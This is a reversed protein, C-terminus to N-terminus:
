GDRAVRGKWEMLLDGVWAKVAVTRAITHAQAPHVPAHRHGSERQAGAQEDAGEILGRTEIIEAKKERYRTVYPEVEHMIIQDAVGQPGLLFGGAETVWTARQGRRRRARRGNVVHLGFYHWLSRVGTGRRSHLPAGCREPGQASEGGYEIPCPAGEEYIAPVYHRDKGGCRMGPFRRPDRIRAVVWASYPGRVGPELWSWMPHARLAKKVMRRTSREIKSLAEVERETRDATKAGQVLKAYRRWWAVSYDLAATEPDIYPYAPPLMEHAPDIERSAEIM